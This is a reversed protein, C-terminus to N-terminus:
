PTETLTVDDFYVTGGGNSELSIVVSNWTPTFSVSLPQYSAGVAVQTTAEQTGNLTNFGLARLRATDGSGKAQATLTYRRGATLSTVVYRVRNTGGSTLRLYGTGTRANAADGTVLRARAWERSTPDLDPEFYTIWGNERLPNPQAQEFGGNALATRRYALKVANYSYPYPTKVGYQKGDYDFYDWGAGAFSESFNYISLKSFAYRKTQVWKWWEVYAKYQDNRLNTPGYQEYTWGFETGAIPKIPHGSNRNAEQMWSWLNMLGGDERPVGGHGHTGLYDCYRTVGALILDRTYTNPRTPPASEVKISGDPAVERSAEYAARTLNLAQTVSVGSIDPENGVIYFSAKGKLAQMVTKAYHKFNAYYAADTAREVRSVGLVALNDTYGSAILADFAGITKALSYATDSTNRPGEGTIVGQRFGTMGLIKGHELMTTRYDANNAVTDGHQPSIYIWGVDPGGIGGTPPPTGGVTLSEERLNNSENAEAPLRNIDDVEARVTHAGATATWSGSGSAPGANVKLTVSAGPALSTTHTDSWGVVTGDVSFSVGHITGAPTSTGGANTVTASLTTAQGAAPSAPSWSIDTVVLDYPGSAQAVNLTADRTNNTEDTEGPIRNIDDVHARVTQAGAVALWTSAGTPGNNATVKVSAGAALSQTSTDSWNVMTGGVFFAVGHVVGAPTAAQGQNKITASFTVPEGAKPQAPSWSVETVVLDSTALSQVSEHAAPTEAEASSELLDGGCGGLATVILLAPPLGRASNWSWTRRM